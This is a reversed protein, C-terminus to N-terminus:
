QWRFLKKFFPLDLWQETWLQLFTMVRLLLLLLSLIKTIWLCSVYSIIDQQCDKEWGKLYNQTLFNETKQHAIEDLHKAWIKWYLNSFSLPRGPQWRTCNIDVLSVVVKRDQVPTSVTAKTYWHNLIAKERIVKSLM